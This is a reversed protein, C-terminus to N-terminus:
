KKKKQTRLRLRQSEGESKRKIKEQTIRQVTKNKPTRPKRKPSTNNPKEETDLGLDIIESAKEDKDRTDNKDNRKLKHLKKPGTERKPPSQERLNGKTATFFSSM